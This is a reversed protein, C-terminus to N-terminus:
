KSSELALMASAGAACLFVMIFAIPLTLALAAITAVVCLAIRGLSLAMEKLATHEDLFSGADATQEFTLPDLGIRWPTTTYFYSDVAIAGFPTAILMRFLWPTVALVVNVTNSAHLGARRIARRVLSRAFIGIIFTISLVLGLLAYSWGTILFVALPWFLLLASGAVGELLSRVVLHRNFPDILHGFTERYGWSFVEHLDRLYFIPLVSLLIFAAGAYLIWVPAYPLVSISIGCIIPPLAILVEALISGRGKGTTEAEIEYPIWYLARYLGLGCSFVVILLPVYANSWFGEFTAGLIVFASAAVLTASMLVRRAGSRLLRAAYPTVLCTIAQSLAYLLATRALGHAIDPEVLYFYQFIFIWAFMNAGAFGFRLLFRHASLARLNREPSSLSPERLAFTRM